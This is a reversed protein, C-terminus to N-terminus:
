TDLCECRDDGNRHAVGRRSQLTGLADARLLREDNVECSLLVIDTTDGLLLADRYLKDFPMSEDAAMSDYM